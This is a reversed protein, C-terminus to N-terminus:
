AGSLRLFYSLIEASRWVGDGGRSLSWVQKSSAIFSTLEGLEPNRLQAAIWQMPLCGVAHTM